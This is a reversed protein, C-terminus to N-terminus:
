KAHCTLCLASGANDVRLLASATAPGNNHVDHCSACEMQGAFLLDSVATTTGPDNLGGDASALASDYLFGVPHDDGLNTGLNATTGPVAVSITSAGANVGFSDVAVTNDHCSLCLKSIGSPQAMTANLTASSYLTYSATTTTHDWLPANTVTTDANHPTHCYVCIETTVTPLMGSFDHASGTIVAFAPSAMLIAVIASLLVKKM